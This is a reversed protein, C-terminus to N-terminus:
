TLVLTAGLRVQSGDAVTLKLGYCALHPRLLRMGLGEVGLATFPRTFSGRLIVDPPHRSAICKQHVATNHMCLTILWAELRGGSTMRHLLKVLGEVVNATISSRPVLSTDSFLALYTETFFNVTHVSEKERGRLQLPNSIPVNSPLINQSFDKEPSEKM